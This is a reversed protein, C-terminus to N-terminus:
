PSTSLFYTGMSVTIMHCVRVVHVCEFKDTVVTIEDNAHMENNNNNNKKEKNDAESRVSNYKLQIFVPAAFYLWSFYFLQFNM